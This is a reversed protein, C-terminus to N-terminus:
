SKVWKIVEDLKDPSEPYFIPINNKKAWQLEARAGSSKEWGPIALIADSARQLIEMDMEKYFDEPAAAKEEFHETHNHPCFFPIQANALAIQYKEAHRINEEINARDGNGFYPGAIFIIKMRM